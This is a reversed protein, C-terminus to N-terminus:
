VVVVVVVVVFWFVFLFIGFWDFVILYVFLKWKKTHKQVNIQKSNGHLQNIEFLHSAQRTIYPKHFYLRYLEQM